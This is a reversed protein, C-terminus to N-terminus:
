PQSKAKAGELAGKIGLVSLYFLPVSCVTFMLKFLYSNMILAGTREGPLIDFFAMFGTVIATDILLSFTTSGSSRLWLKKEGTLKRIGLYIRIDILQACYCALVSGTFAISYFGFVKHFITNDIKSWDTANLNDMGMIILAVTINM